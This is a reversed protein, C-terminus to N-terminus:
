LQIASQLFIYRTKTEDMSSPIVFPQSDVLLGVHALFGADLIRHISSQDYQRRNPLRRLQARATNVM